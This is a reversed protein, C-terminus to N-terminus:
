KRFAKRVVKGTGIDLQCDFGSFNGVVLPEESVITTYADMDALGIGDARWLQEGTAASYAFVNQAPVGPPFAMYDFLAIVVGSIERADSVPYPTRITGISYTIQNSSVLLKM